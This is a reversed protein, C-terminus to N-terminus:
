PGLEKVKVSAGETGGKLADRPRSKGLCGREARYNGESAVSRGSQAKAPAWFSWRRWKAASKNKDKVCGWGWGKGWSSMRLCSERRQGSPDSRTARSKAQEGWAAAWPHVSCTTNPSEELGKGRCGATTGRQGLAVLDMRTM